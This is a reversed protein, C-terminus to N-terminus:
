DVPDCDVSPRHRGARRSPAITAAASVAAVSVTAPAVGAAAAGAVGLGGFTVWPGQWYVWVGSSGAARGTGSGGSGRRVGFRPVTPDLQPGVLARDPQGQVPGLCGAGHLAEQM